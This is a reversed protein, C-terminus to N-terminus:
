IRTWYSPHLGNRELTCVREQSETSPKWLISEVNHMHKLVETLGLSIKRVIKDCL